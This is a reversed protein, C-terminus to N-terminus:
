GKNSREEEPRCRLQWNVGFRDTFKAYLPSFFTSQPEMEIVGEWSLATFMARTEDETDFQLVFSINNGVSYPAGMLNDSMLLLVQGDKVIEAHLVMNKNAEPVAFAPNPPADGARMIQSEGGLAERYFEVADGCNGDFTLYPTLWDAV